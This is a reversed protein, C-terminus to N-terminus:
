RSTKRRRHSLRGFGSYRKLCDGYLPLGIDANRHDAPGIRALTRQEISESSESLTDAIIRAYRDLPVDAREFRVITSDLQDIQGSCM